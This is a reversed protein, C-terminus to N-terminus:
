IGFLNTHWTEYFVFWIQAVKHAFTGIDSLLGYFRLKVRLKKHIVIIKFELWKLM